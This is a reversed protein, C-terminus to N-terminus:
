LENVLEMEGIPVDRKTMKRIEVDYGNSNALARLQLACAMSKTYSVCESSGRPTIRFLTMVGM